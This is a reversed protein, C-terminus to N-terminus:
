SLFVAGYAHFIISTFSAPYILSYTHRLKSKTTSRTNIASKCFKMYNCHLYILLHLQFILKMKKCRNLYVQELIDIYTYWFIFNSKAWIFILSVETAANVDAKARILVNLAGIHGTFAAAYVPTAKNQIFYCRCICHLVIHVLLWPLVCWSLCYMCTYM